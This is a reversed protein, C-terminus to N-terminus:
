GGIRLMSRGEMARLQEMPPHAEPKRNLAFRVRTELEGDTAGARMMEALNEEPRHFLCTKLAGDAMLRLRVCQACFHATMPAIFGIQGRFGPIRFERATGGAAHRPLPELRHRSEITRRMTEWPILGGQEWPNGSFPMYEIFRVEVPLARALEVFDLLEDDNQGAILVTNIKLPAFGAGLAAEIGQLVRSLGPRGAIRAFRDERLTDLSINLRALGRVKLSAARSALRMGNTTMALTDLGPLAALAAVLAEIDDRMLPEGGTLRIKRVGLRAFLAALRLIEDLSMPTCPAHLHAEEKPRCYFCQLGCAETVALRLYTHRRGFEDVLAMPRAAPQTKAILGM